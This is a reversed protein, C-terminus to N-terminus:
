LEMGAAGNPFSHQLVVACTAVGAAISVFIVSSMMKIALV